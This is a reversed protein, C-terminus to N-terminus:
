DNTTMHSSLHKLSVVYYQLHKKKDIIITTKKGEPEVELLAFNYHLNHAQYVQLDM